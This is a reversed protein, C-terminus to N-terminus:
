FFIRGTAGTAQIALFSFFFALFLALLAEGVPMEYQVRMVVCTLVLTAILGPCWMWTKVSDEPSAPDEILGGNQHEEEAYSSRREISSYSPSILKSVGSWVARGTLWFVRWQCALESYV